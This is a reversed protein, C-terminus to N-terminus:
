LFEPHMCVCWTKELLARDRGAAGGDRVGEDYGGGLAEEVDAGRLCSQVVRVSQSVSWRVFSRVFAVWFSGVRAVGVGRGEGDM